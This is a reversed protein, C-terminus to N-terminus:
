KLWYLPDNNPHEETTEPLNQQQPTSMSRLERITMLTVLQGLAQNPDMLAPNNGSSIQRPTAAGSTQAKQMSRRYLFWLVAAIFMVAAVIVLAMTMITILNATANMQGVRAVEITAQAQRASAYSQMGSSIGIIVVVLLLIILLIRM